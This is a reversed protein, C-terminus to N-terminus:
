PDPGGRRLADGRGRGTVTAARLGRRGPATAAEHQEEQARPEDAEGIKMAIGSSTVTPSDNM